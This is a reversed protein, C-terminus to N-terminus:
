DLGNQVQQMIRTDNMSWEDISTQASGLSGIAASSAALFTTATAVEVTTTAAGGTGSSATCTADIDNAGFFAAAGVFGHLYRTTGEASYGAKNVCSTFRDWEASYAKEGTYIASLATKAESQKAKAQFKQFNPVAITALIGIIAVVIMLEILSFGAQTQTIRVATKM